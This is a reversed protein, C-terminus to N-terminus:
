LKELNMGCVPCNGPQDYTKDGECHMPCYYKGKGSAPSHTHKHAVPTDTHHHAHAVVPTNETSITYKGVPTLVAQLQELPIHKQMQIVAQPPELSVSAHVGEITNLAKEVKTRCGDCSMGHIYYTHTM